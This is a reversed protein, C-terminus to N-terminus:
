WSGSAGGGGSSGGGFVGSGGDDHSGIEFPSEALRLIYVILAGLAAIMAWGWGSRGSKFLSIIVGIILVAMFVLLPPVWVSAKFEPMILGRAISDMGRVGALIGSSYDGEEFRPIIMEDMIRQAQRTQLYGWHAGLEIRAKRDGLPVLLLMGRNYEPSGIGWHNFLQRAYSEISLHDAGHDLLSSITVVLISIQKSAFLELSIRDIEFRHEYNLLGAEDVFFHASSPKNPFDIARVVQPFLVSLFFLMLGLHIKMRSNYSDSRAQTLRYKAM